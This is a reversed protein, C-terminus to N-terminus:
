DHVLNSRLRALRRPTVWPSRTESVRERPVHWTGHCAGAPIPAPWIRFHNSPSMPCLLGSTFQDDRELYILTQLAHGHGTPWGNVSVNESIDSVHGSMVFCGAPSLAGHCYTYYVCLKSYYYDSICPFATFSISQSQRPNSGPRTISYPGFSAFMPINRPWNRACRLKGPTVLWAAPFVVLWVIRCLLKFFITPALKSFNSVSFWWFGWHSLM